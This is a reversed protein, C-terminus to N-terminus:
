DKPVFYSIIQKFIPAATSGGTVYESTQNTKAGWLLVSGVMPGEKTEVFGTFSTNFRDESYGVGELHTRSTGTKGGIIYGEKRLSKGTGNEGEVVNILLKKLRDSMEPNIIENNQIEIKDKQVLTLKVDKGGNAIISYARIMQYQSVNVSYGISLSSLCTLCNKYDVFGGRTEGTLEVGSKEGFGFKKLYEEIEVVSSDKTIKITGVNSSREIIEKVSLEYPEHELFDKFCGKLGKYLKGCSSEIIEIKDEVYYKDDENVVGKDLLAGITFIKLASGPEYFARGSILNINFYENDNSSKEASIIIEGSEANAFVVSCKFADTKNIAKECLEESLYQLDSDLSLLLDEGHIPDITKIEGQPIVSGNPAAEYTLEGNIGKLNNDFYLELGEVGNGDPDVHGIIKDLSESYIVRKNSPEVNIGQYGWKKIKMGVDFSINRKLYFYNNNENLRKFIIENDISLLPSLIDSIVKKNTIKNPNIGINFANISEAVQNFNRDLISGRRAEIVETKERYSLAKNKFYESDSFQLRYVEEIFLASSFLVFLNLILFLISLRTKQYKM